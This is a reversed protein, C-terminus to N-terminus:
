VRDSHCVDSCVCNDRGDLQPIRESPSESYSSAATDVETTSLSFTRSTEHQNNSSKVSTKSPYSTTSLEAIKKNMENMNSTLLGVEKRLKGVEKELDEILLGWGDLATFEKM